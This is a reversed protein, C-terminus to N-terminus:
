DRQDLELIQWRKLRPIYDNENLLDRALENSHQRLRKKYNCCYKNVEQKITPLETYEHLENNRAFWPACTIQRLVKNQFRQLIELNSNSASGWLQIGYTWVPKIVAKYILLKNNLTLTSKRGILWQLSNWRIDAEKRKKKIHNEWTLRRDLHLGLYKVSTENPLPEGRMTVPPCDGKRLTFTIQVSKTVSAKIRWKELWQDIKDLHVQLKQSAIEPTKDSALCATDDAYTATVVKDTTPLDATYISYLVPGLVSGQPISAKIDYLNSTEGGFKVQFKRELLYSKLVMYYTNPLSTKLKYLLGTHWVKDFAQQIDLFVAACYEKCELSQRIKSVVRHAQEVTTHQERFGFQHDPIIKEQDLIPKLRHLFIKEFVKSITPLLSIPRYSTPETPPKGPKPLMCVQSVKWLKPYHQVRFIANFLMCLFVFAKRPLHKLIEGTILDFGPAKKNGLHKITNYVEKPTVLKPPLSLQQDSDVIKELEEDIDPAASANPTFIHSLHQAFTEAKEEARKAWSGTQTRIPPIHKQPRNFKKTIKWLSYDTSKTATLSSLKHQLTDNENEKIMDTLERASRNLAAKDDPHRSLHWKRRLSRKEQIKNRIQLPASHTTNLIKLYPTALWAAEQIKNTIYFTADDIDDPTKLKIKLNLETHLIDTFSTWNTKHNYLSKDQEQYLATTSFSGIVPTHDSSSDLCNEVAFYTHSFGKIIFFDLLDPCKNPDTPWYTPEGTSLTIMNYKDICKKLERGRTTILRSGWKTHKSNWDGGSIYRSGLTKFYNYFMAENITHRPPCYVASVNYDGSRDQVTVTTAQLHDKNYHSHIHHKINNKIIVATGGHSTGDPHNTNYVAYNDLDFEKNDNLHTESMLVIDIKNTHLLVQLDNKSPTLGNINWIGIRLQAM